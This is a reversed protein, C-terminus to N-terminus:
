DHQAPEAMSENGHDEPASVASDQMEMHHGEGDASTSHACNMMMAQMVPDNMDMKSHDMGEMMECKPAEADQAHLSADHANAASLTGLSVATLVIIASVTKM